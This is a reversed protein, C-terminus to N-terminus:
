GYWNVKQGTPYGVPRTYITGMVAGYILHGAVVSAPGLWGIGIAFM